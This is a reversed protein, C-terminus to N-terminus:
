QAKALDQATEIAVAKQNDTSEALSVDIDPYVGVKDIDHGLPTKYYAATYRLAGGFSLDHTVQVSGKGLTRTGVLTARQNEKLAAALVEASAATHDNVIVVLPLATTETGSANRPTDDAESTEIRALTGSKIFLSAIDLAQTLFGGPNDRIDLVIAEAGQKKLSALAERVLEASNSTIQKVTIVGVDGELLASVNKVTSDGVKLTTIFQRGGEDEPSMPRRWTIVVDGGARSKLESTVEAMTWSDKKDGDIAVIIDGSQVGAEQAPSGEFVDVAYTNGNYESFLVGVGAYTGANSAEQVLLAYEDPTYYHMYPDAAAEALADIMGETAEDISYSELSDAALVDEVENVRLGLSSYPDKGEMPAGAAPGEASLDVFGLRELLGEQGRVFFGAVFALVVLAFGVFLRALRSNRSQTLSATMALKTNKSNRAM